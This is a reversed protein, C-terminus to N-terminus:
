SGDKASLLRALGRMAQIVLMLGLLVAAIGPLQALTVDTFALICLLIAAGFALGTLVECRPFFVHGLARRGGRRTKGQSNGCQIM